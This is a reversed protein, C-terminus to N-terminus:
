ARAGGMRRLADAIITPTDQGVDTGKLGAQIEATSFGMADLAAHADRLAPHAPLHSPTGVGELDAGVKGKLDLAIRQATKKGVGPISSLLAIDDCSIAMALADPSYSSLAALAVKPGVGSVELFRRFLERQRLEDFGYLSIESERVYQHTYVSAEGGEQILRQGLAPAVYVQYGIGGVDLTLVEGDFSAPQGRLFGIM